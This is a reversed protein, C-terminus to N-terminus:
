KSTFNFKSAIQKPSLLALQIYNNVYSFQDELSELTLEAHQISGPRGPSTDYNNYYLVFDKTSIKGRVVVDKSILCPGISQIVVTM